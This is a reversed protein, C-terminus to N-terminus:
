LVMLLFSLRWHRSDTHCVTVFQELCVSCSGPVFPWRHYCANLSTRWPWFMCKSSTVSPRCSIHGFYTLRHGTETGDYETARHKIYQIMYFHLGYLGLHLVSTLFYCTSKYIMWWLVESTSSSETYTSVPKKLLRKFSDRGTDTEHLIDRLLNWASPVAVSFASRGFMCAHWNMTWHLSCYPSVLLVSQSITRCLVPRGAKTSRRCIEHLLRRESEGSLSVSRCLCVCVYLCQVLWTATNDTIVPPSQSIVIFCHVAVLPHCGGQWSIVRVSGEGLLM